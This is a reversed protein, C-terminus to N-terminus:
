GNHQDDGETPGSDDDTPAPQCAEWGSDEHSTDPPASPQEQPQAQDRAGPEQGEGPEHAAAPPEAAPSAEGADGAVPAAPSAQPEDKKDQANQALTKAAGVVGGWGKKVSDGTESLSEAAQQAQSKALESLKALQQKLGGEGPTAALAEAPVVVSDRGDVTGEMPTLCIVGETIDRWAGGSVEYRSVRKNIPDIYVTSLVGLRRGAATLVERPGAAPDRRREMLSPLESLHRAVRYTGVMVADTGIVEVDSAAIGKESPGKGVILGELAGSSLSVIAQSVTGVERGEKSSFVKLGIISALDRM